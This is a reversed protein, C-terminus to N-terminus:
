EGTDLFRGDSRRVDGRWVVGVKDALIHCDTGAYRRCKTLATELCDEFDCYDVNCFQYTHGSGDPAMVFYGAKGLNRSFREYAKTADESLTLKGRGWLAKSQPNRQGASSCSKSTRRGPGPVEGEWVVKGRWAFVKCPVGDSHVRCSEIASRFLKHRQVGCMGTKPCYNYGASNGNESIAFAGRHVKRLYEEYFTRIEPYLQEVKDQAQADVGPLFSHAALALGVILWLRLGMM